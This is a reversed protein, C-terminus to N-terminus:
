HGGSREPDASAASEPFFVTSLIYPARAADAPNQALDRVRRGLDAILRTREKPTLWVILQRYSVDDAFPDACPRDLYAGFDAILAAMAATFGRRHDDATMSRADRADVAAAGPVLRYRREVVGRVKQESEVEFLGGRVLRNVQRYVTARPLDPLASCLETTTLRGAARLAHVLRLRVPHLLLALRDDLALNGGAM